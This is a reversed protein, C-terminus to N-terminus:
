QNLPHRAVYSRLSFGSFVYHRASARCRVSLHETSANHSACFALHLQMLLALLDPHNHRSLHPNSSPPLAKADRGVLNLYNLYMHMWGLRLYRKESNTLPDRGASMTTPSGSLATEVAAVLEVLEDRESPSLAEVSLGRRNYKGLLRRASADVLELDSAQEARQQVSCQECACAFGHQLHLAARRDPDIPSAYSWLVETGARIPQSAHVVMAEGAYSRVANSACSHNIMAALPYMGLLRYPRYSTDNNSDNFGDGVFQHQLREYSVFDPGFANHRVIKLLLADSVSDPDLSLWPEANVAQRTVPSDRATLLDVSTSLLKSIWSNEQPHQSSAVLSLVSRAKPSKAELELRIAELLVQEAASELCSRSNGSEVSEYPQMLLHRCKDYVANVDAKIAPWIVFLCTGPAVDQTLM